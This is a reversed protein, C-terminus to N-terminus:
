GRTEKKLEDWNKLVTVGLNDLAKNIEAKTKKKREVPALPTLVVKGQADAEYDFVQGPKVSPLLVRKKADTIVTM